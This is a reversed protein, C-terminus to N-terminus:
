GGIKAILTGLEEAEVGEVPEFVMEREEWCGAVKGIASLSAWSANESENPRSPNERSDRPLTM